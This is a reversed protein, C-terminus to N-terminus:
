RHYQAGLTQAGRADAEHVPQDDSAGGPTPVKGDGDLRFLEELDKHLANSKKYEGRKSLFFDALMKDFVSEHALNRNQTLDAARAELNDYGIAQENNLHQLNYKSEADYTLTQSPPLTSMAASLPAWAFEDVTAPESLKLEAMVSERLLELYIHANPSRLAVAFDQKLMCDKLRAQTYAQVLGEVKQQDFNEAMYERLLTSEYMNKLGTMEPTLETLRRAERYVAKQALESKSMTWNQGSEDDQYSVLSASGTGHVHQGDGEGADFLQEDLGHEQTALHSAPHTRVGGLEWDVAATSEALTEGRGLAGEVQNRLLDSSYQKMTSANLYHHRTMFEGLTLQSRREHSVYKMQDEVHELVSEVQAVLDGKLPGNPKAAAMM